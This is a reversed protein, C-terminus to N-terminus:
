LKGNRAAKMRRIPAIQLNEWTDCTVVNRKLSCAVVPLRLFRSKKNGQQEAIKTIPVQKATVLNDNQLIQWEYRVRNSQFGKQDQKWHKFQKKGCIWNNINLVRSDWDLLECLWKRFLSACCWGSELARLSETPSLSILHDRWPGVM